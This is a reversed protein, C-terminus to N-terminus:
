YDYDLVFDDIYLVSGNGGTFYDGYKSASAVVLIYSPVRHTDRYELEIEFPIYEPVSEGYQVKGYAIVAPSNSDFLQRDSTSTRIQYPETWDTLAMYVIATDPQGIWEDRKFESSVSSIPTCNYKLYGRLKTPRQVFERGFGLVGNTGVTRLYDGSFMNGAAFKILILKSQLMAALGTGNPTDTTPVTNSQGITTAGKNGTGWWPTGGQEWPNWLKGDQWWEDFSGNPLQIESGTVFSMPATYESDSYARVQYSTNPSLHILRAAFSGGTATIWESPVKTWEVDGEVKYEFGNNKGTEAAGYLWAVRTWADMQVISVSVESEEVVITWSTNQGFEEVNVTVPHTFDAEMGNLDPIMVSTTGGLKIREVAIKTMDMGEPVYATVTHTDVDIDSSGIQSGVVFYREINQVATITWVYDQYLSVTVNLPETLDLGGNLDPSVVRSGEPDLRYSEIMVNRIDAAEDFNLTIKRNNTDIVPSSLLNQVEIETFNPQIHPYPLDNKICSSGFALTASVVLAASIKNYTYM